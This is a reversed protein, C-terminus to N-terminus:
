RGTQGAAEERNQRFVLATRAAQNSTTRFRKASAVLKADAFSIIVVKSCNSRIGSSINRSTSGANLVL